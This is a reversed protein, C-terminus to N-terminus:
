WEKLNDVVLLASQVNILRIERIINSLRNKRALFHIGYRWYTCM